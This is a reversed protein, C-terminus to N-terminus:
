FIVIAASVALYFYYISNKFDLDLVNENEFTYCGMEQNVYISFCFSCESHDGTYGCFFLTSVNIFVDNLVIFQFYYSFQIYNNLRYVTFVLFISNYINM